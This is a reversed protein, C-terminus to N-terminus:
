LRFRKRLAMFSATLPSDMDMLSGVADWESRLAAKDRSPLCMLTMDFRPVQSLGELLAVAQEPDVAAVGSLARQVISRLVPATLSQKFISPLHFAQLQQLYQTQLAADGKLGKWAREFDTATRPATYTSSTQRRVQEAAAAADKKKQQEEWDFLTKMYDQVEQANQRIQLQADM